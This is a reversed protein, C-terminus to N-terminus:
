NGTFTMEAGTCVNYRNTVSTEDSFVGKVDMLCAGSGDDFDVVLSEGPHIVSRGLWDGHYRNDRVSSAYLNTLTHNTENVVLVHRNAAAASSASATAVAITAVAISLGRIFKSAM